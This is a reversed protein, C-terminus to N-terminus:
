FLFIDQQLCDPHESLYVNIPECGTCRKTGNNKLWKKMIEVNKTISNNDVETDIQSIRHSACNCPVIKNMDPIYFAINDVTNCFGKAHYLENNYFLNHIEEETRGGWEKSYGLIKPEKINKVYEKFEIYKQIYYEVNGDNWLVKSSKLPIISWMNIKYKKLLELINILDDINYKSAVTNVRINVNPSIEKILEFGEIVRDFLGVLNRSKDHIDARSGDLSFIIQDIGAEKLERYKNPILYGNTIISTKFGEMKCKKVLDVIKPHLLPEGGTFRVMGYEGDKKMYDLIFKLQEENINYSEKNNAYKCMFCGANCRTSVRVFMIKRKM